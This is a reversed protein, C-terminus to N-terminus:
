FVFLVIRVLMDLVEQCGEETKLLDSPTRYDLGRAPCTLWNEAADFSGLVEAAKARVFNVNSSM